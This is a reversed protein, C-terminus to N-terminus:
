ELDPGVEKEGNSICVLGSKLDGSYLHELEVLCVVVGLSSARYELQGPHLLLDLVRNDRKDAKLM